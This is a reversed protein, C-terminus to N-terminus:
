VGATKAGNKSQLRSISGKINIWKLGANMLDGSYVAAVLFSSAIM